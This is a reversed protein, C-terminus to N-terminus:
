RNVFQVMGFPPMNGIRTTHGPSGPRRSATFLLYVNSGFMLNFNRTWMTSTWKKVAAAVGKPSLAPKEPESPLM